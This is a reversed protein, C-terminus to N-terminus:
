KIDFDMLNKDRSTFRFKKEIKLHALINDEEEDEDEFNNSLNNFFIAEPEEDEKHTDRM